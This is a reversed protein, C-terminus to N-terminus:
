VVQLVEQLGLTHHPPFGGGTLYHNLALIPTPLILFPRKVHIRPQAKIRVTTPVRPHLLPHGRPPQVPHPPWIEPEWEPGQLEM